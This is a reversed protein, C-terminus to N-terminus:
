RIKRVERRYKTVDHGGFDVFFVVFVEGNGRKQQRLGQPLRNRGNVSKGAAGVIEGIFALERWGLSQGLQVAVPLLKVGNRVVAGAIVRNKQAQAGDNRLM